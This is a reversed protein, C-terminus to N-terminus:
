LRRVIAAFEGAAVTRAAAELEPALYRDRGLTPAFTRVLDRGAKTGVGAELPALLDIAQAACLAEIGLM